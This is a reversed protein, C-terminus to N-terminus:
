VDSKSTYKHTEFVEQATWKVPLRKQLVLSVWMSPTFMCVQLLLQSLRDSDCATLLSVINVVQWQGSECATPPLVISDVRNSNGDCGTLLSMNVVRDSDSDNDNDCGTLLSMNVVRDSDSDCGTLLSM